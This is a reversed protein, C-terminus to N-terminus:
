ASEEEQDFSYLTDDLVVKGNNFEQIFQEIVADTITEKNLGVDLGVGFDVHLDYDVHEKVKIIEEEQLDLIVEAMYLGIAEEDDSLPKLNGNEDEQYSLKRYNPFHKAAEHEAMEYLELEHQFRLTYLIADYVVEDGEYNGVFQFHRYEDSNEEQEVMEFSAGNLKKKFQAIVTPDFGSNKPSKM